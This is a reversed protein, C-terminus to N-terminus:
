KNKNFIIRLSIPNKLCVSGAYVFGRTNYVDFQNKERSVNANTILLKEKKETTTKM